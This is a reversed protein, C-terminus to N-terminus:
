SVVTRGAQLDDWQQQSLQVPETHAGQLGDLYKNIDWQRGNALVHFRDGTVRAVTVKNPHVVYSAMNDIDKTARIIPPPVPTSPQTVSLVPVRAVAKVAAWPRTKRLVAGGNTQSGAASTNGEIAVVGFVFASEVIGTHDAGRGDTNSMDYFVVDGPQAKQKDALVWGNRAYGALATDCDSYGGSVETKLEIGVQHFCWCVFISCWAVGNFGYWEGYKQRNSGYPSETTGIEARAVDLLQGVSAM